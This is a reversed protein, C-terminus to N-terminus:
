SILVNLAAPEIRVVIHAAKAVHVGDLYISRPRDLEFTESTIKRTKVDSHPIHSGSLARKKFERADRAKLKAELLDLRGDGPHSKTVLNLDGLWAGNMVSLFNTSFNNARKNWVILHAVFWFIVGDLLVSGIDCKFMESETSEAKDSRQRGPIIGLTKALDGGLLKIDPIQIKARKAEEVVKRAEADSRAEVINNM